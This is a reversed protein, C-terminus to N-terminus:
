YITNDKGATKLRRLHKPISKQRNLAAALIYPQSKRRNQAAAFTKSDVL